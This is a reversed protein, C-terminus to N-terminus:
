DLVPYDTTFLICGAGYSAPVLRHGEPPGWLHVRWGTSVFLVNLGLIVVTIQVSLRSRRGWVGRSSPKCLSVMSVLMRQGPMRSYSWLQTLVRCGWSPFLMSPTLVPSKRCDSWWKEITQQLLSYESSSWVFSPSPCMTFLCPWLSLPSGLHSPPLSNVQWHLVHLLGM